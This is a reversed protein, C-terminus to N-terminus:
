LIISLIKEERIEKRILRCYKEITDLANPITGKLVIKIISIM